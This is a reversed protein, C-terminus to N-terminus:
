RKLLCACAVCPKCRTERPLQATQQALAASHGRQRAGDRRAGGRASTNGGSDAKPWMETVLTEGPYVSKVFRVRISKFRKPDNAAFHKLVARAGYGFTCLGHLIPKSFGGMAAMSPDIHLPNLDGSLRYLTAQNELTRERHVVAPPVGKPPELNEEPTAPGKAGGFGGLGRIFLSYSNFLVPEGKENKSHVDLVVLAGSGKDYIAKVKAKSTLAGSPPVPRLLEMYQEGHLLMMPNFSLGPTNIFGSLAGNPPIV